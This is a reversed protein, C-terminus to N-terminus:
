IHHTCQTEEAERSGMVMFPSLEAGGVGRTHDM